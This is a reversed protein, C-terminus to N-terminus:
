RSSQEIVNVLQRITEQARRTSAAWWHRAVGIVGSSAVLFTPISLVPHLQSVGFASFLLLLFITIGVSLAGLTFTGRRDITLRVVAGNEDPHVVLHLVDGSASADWRVGLDSAHGDNTSIFSGANVRVASLIRLSRAAGVPVPVHSVYHHQLPGGVFRTVASREDFTPLLMHAAREILDPDLGAQEAASKMETLTLGNSAISADTSNHALESATRLILAFEEDSFVREPETVPSPSSTRDPDHIESRGVDPQPEPM